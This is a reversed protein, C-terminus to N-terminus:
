KGKGRRDFTGDNADRVLAETGNRKVGSGVFLLVVFAKFLKLWRLFLYTLAANSGLSGDSWLEDPKRLM